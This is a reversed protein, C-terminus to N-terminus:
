AVTVTGNMQPHVDCKFYYSGPALPPITFEKTAPGTFFDFGFLKDAASSDTYISLNHPLTDKNVFTLKVDSNAPLDIQNTDFQTNAATVAIANGGGGGGSPVGSPTAGGAVVNLTGKMTTPHAECHFYFTGAKLPAMTLTQKVPGPALATKDIVTASALDQSDTVAVNHTNNPAKTDQNDFVIKFTADAPATLETQSYGVTAADVPAVLNLVPVEPPPKEPGITAVAIGGALMAVGAVIAVTPVLSAASLRKLTAVRAAVGMITAVVVIATVNAAHPSLSLLIRSFGLVAAAIVVLAGLPILLPLVLRDRTQRRM